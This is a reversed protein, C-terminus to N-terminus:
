KEQVTLFVPGLLGSERLSENDSPGSITWTKRNSEPQGADYVLRNFWSNTVEVTLTNMGSRIVETLDVRYPPTWLTRILKGNVSVAAIMEVRGLDLTFQSGRAIKGIDFTTTYAATGSFAKAEDSIDLDQWAKLTALQLTSPAGWGEPFSLTWSTALPITRSTRYRTDNMVTKALGGKKRFVVFCSGAQPLDLSVLTRDGELRAAAPTMTGTVPDWIEARGLSNRFDLTGQFGSGKPACVYYWDVGDIHRHSWLAGSGEVDPKINLEILAEEITMGAVAVGKGIKRIGRQPNTGWINQVAVDFRQQSTAAGSLTALGQPANGIITAGDNIFDYMKEVTQPLM